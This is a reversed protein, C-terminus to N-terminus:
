QVEANEVAAYLDTVAKKVDGNQVDQVTEDSVKDRVLGLIQSLGLSDAVDLIGEAINTVQEPFAANEVAIEQCRANTADFAEGDGVEPNSTLKEAGSVQPGFCEAEITDRIDSAEAALTDGGTIDSTQSLGAQMDRTFQKAPESAVAAAAKLGFIVGAMVLGIVLLVVLVKSGKRGPRTREAVDHVSETDRERPHFNVLGIIGGLVWIGIALVHLKGSDSTSAAVNNLAALSVAGGAVAAVWTLYRPAGWARAGIVILTITAAALVLYGGIADLIVIGISALAAQIALPLWLAIVLINIALGTKTTTYRRNM